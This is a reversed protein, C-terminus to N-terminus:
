NNERRVNRVAGGFIRLAEKVMPSREDGASPAGAPARGSEAAALQVVQVTVEQAFFSKALERLAALNDSDQLFALHHRESVGIKM